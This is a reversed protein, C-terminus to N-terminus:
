CGDESHQPIFDDPEVRVIKHLCEEGTHVDGDTVITTGCSDCTFQFQGSARLTYNHCQSCKQEAYGKTRAVSREHRETLQDDAGNGM